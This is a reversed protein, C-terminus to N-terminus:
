WVREILYDLERIPEIRIKPVRRRSNAGLLELFERAFFAIDQASHFATDFFPAYLARDCISHPTNLLVVLEMGGFRESFLEIPTDIPEYAFPGCASHNAASFRSVLTIPDPRTCAPLPAARPLVCVAHIPCVHWFGARAREADHLARATPHVRAAVGLAFDLEVVIAPALHDRALILM